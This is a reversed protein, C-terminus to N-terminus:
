RTASQMVTEDANGRFDRNNVAIYVDQIQLSRKCLETYPEIM